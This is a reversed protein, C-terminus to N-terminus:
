EADSAQILAALRGLLVQLGQMHDVIRESM